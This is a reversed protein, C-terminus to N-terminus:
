RAPTISKTKRQPLKMQILRQVTRFGISMRPVYPAILLQEAMAITALSLVGMTDSGMVSQVNLRNKMRAIHAFALHRPASSLMQLLLTTPNTTAIILLRSPTHFAVLRAAVPCFLLHALNTLSADLNPPIHLPPFTSLSAHYRHRCLPRYSISTSTALFSHDGSSTAHLPAPSMVAISALSIHPQFLRSTHFYHVILIYTSSDSPCFIQCLQLATLRACFSSKATCWQNTCRATASVNPDCWHISHNSAASRVISHSLTM